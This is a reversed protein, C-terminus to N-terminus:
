ASHKARNLKLILEMLKCEHKKVKKLKHLAEAKLLKKERNKIKDLLATVEKSNLTIKM